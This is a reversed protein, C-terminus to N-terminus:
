YEGKPTIISTLLHLARLAVFQTLWHSCQPWHTIESFIRVNPSNGVSLNVPYTKINPKSKETLSVRTYNKHFETFSAM